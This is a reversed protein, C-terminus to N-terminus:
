NKEINPIGSEADLLHQLDEGTFKLGEGLTGELVSQALARKREQMDLIKEEITGSTVLKYIFVPKDQGIRYARDTAQNEAAPNWWPDFHIVTDAATLNLGVGGAKLSILFVKVAGQQFQEVQKQRDHTKGTLLAFDIGLDQLTEGLLSLLSTFQSFILVSRGEELMGPLTDKIWQMKVSAKEKRAEELQLLRPDCCAQRLRLLATLAWIQSSALGRRAIEGRLEESTAVRLTEYVDRQAGELELKVVIETKEPLERAVEGKTRRLMLPRLLMSLKDQRQLDMEREIPEQFHSRFEAEKPLLGPMLFHFLSWLELLHNEMPTGTLCLRHLSKVKTLARSTQSKFNKIHQAEDLVVTHFTHGELVKVDRLLSGYTTFVVDVESLQGLKRHRGSGHWTLTRLAPTFKEAEAKWNHMLSTPAVILAPSTLRGGEKEMLLHTLTQLTKGLGMDDALIGNMGTERLLQLWGVGEHQYPRLTAQLSLPVDPLSQHQLKLLGRGLAKVKETGQWQVGPLTDLDQLQPAVLRPIRFKSGQDGEEGGHYELLLKLFQKLRHLEVRVYQTMGVPLYEVHTHHQEELLLHLDEPHNEMWRLLLPLLSVTQGGVQVGLELDLWGEEERVVGQLSPTTVRYPADRHFTVKWGAGELSPLTVGMFDKWLDHSTFGGTDKRRHEPHEPTGWLVKKFGAEELLHLAQQEGQLDRTVRAIETGNVVRVVEPDASLVKRNLYHISPFLVPVWGPGQATLSSAAQVELHFEPNGAVEVIGVEEPLPLGTGSLGTRTGQVEEPLIPSLRTFQRLVGSTHKTNVEGLTFTLADVYWVKGLLMVQGGSQIRFLPHQVLSRDKHWGVESERLPGKGLPRVWHGRLYLRGSTLLDALLVDPDEAEEGALYFPSSSLRALLDREGAELPLPQGLYAKLDTAKGGDVTGVLAVIRPSMGEPGTRGPDLSFVLHVPLAPVSLLPPQEKQLQKRPPPPPPPVVKVQVPAPTYGTPQVKEWLGAWGHSELHERVLDPTRAVLVDLKLQLIEPLTGTQQWSQGIRTLHGVDAPTLQTHERPINLLSPNFWQHVVAAMHRCTFEGRPRRCPCVGTFGKPTLEVEVRYLERDEKVRARLLTPHHQYDLVSGQVHLREGEQWGQPTFCLRFAEKLSLPPTQPTPKPQLTM